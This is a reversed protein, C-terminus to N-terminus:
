LLPIDGTYMAGGGTQEMMSALRRGIHPGPELQLGPAVIRVVPIGFLDRTLDIAYTDIGCRSLRAVLAALESETSGGSGAQSPAAGGEPQLLPCTTADVGNARMLHRLDAPNLAAAGGKRAKDDIVQYALEIHCMEKLAARVAGAETLRAAIGHAMGYGNEDWSMAVICPIGFESSIDLLRVGRGTKGARLTPLLDAAAAEAAPSLPRGRRGGRWWLSAADREVLELLGHLAAAPWDPGAGCGTSLAWLPAPLGPRRLCREAPLLVPLGDALRKGRVWGGSGPISAMGEFPAIRPLDAPAEALVDGTLEFQSLYEIGEGVCAEFAERFDLGSGALSGTPVSEYRPDLCAPDAEGGVFVLGPATRTPLTFLRPMRAAARLLAIRNASGAGDYGLDALMRAAAEREAAALAGGGDELLIAANNFLM